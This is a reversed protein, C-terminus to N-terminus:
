RLESRWSSVLALLRVAAFAQSPAVLLALLFLFHGWVALLVLSFLGWLAGRLLASAGAIAGPRTAWPRASAAVALALASSAIAYLVDREIWLPAEPM